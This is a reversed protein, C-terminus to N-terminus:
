AALRTGDPGGDLNVATVDEIHERRAFERAEWEDPFHMAEDPDRVWVGFEKFYFGSLKSRLTNM